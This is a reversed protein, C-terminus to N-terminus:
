QFWLVNALTIIVIIIGIDININNDDHCQWRSLEGPENSL